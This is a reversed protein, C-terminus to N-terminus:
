WFCVDCNRLPGTDRAAACKRLSLDGCSLVCLGIVKSGIPLIYNGVLYIFGLVCGDRLFM